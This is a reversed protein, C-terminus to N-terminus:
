HFSEAPWWYAIMILSQMYSPLITVRWLIAIRAFLIIPFLDLEFVKIVQFKKENLTWPAMVRSFPHQNVSSLVKISM